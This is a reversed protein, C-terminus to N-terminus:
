RAPTIIYLTYSDTVEYCSPIDPCAVDVVGPAPGTDNVIYEGLGVIYVRTGFPYHIEGIYFGTSDGYMAATEGPIALEGSRTIGDPTAKNVCAPNYPDYGTIQFTGIHQYPCAVFPADTANATPTAAACFFAMGVCLVMIAITAAGLLIKDILKIRGIYPKFRKMERETRETEKRGKLKKGIGDAGYWWLRNCYRPVVCGKNRIYPLNMLIEHFACYAIPNSIPKDQKQRTKM